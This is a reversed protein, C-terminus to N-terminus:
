DKGCVGHRREKERIRRGREPSEVAAGSSAIEGNQCDQRLVRRRSAKEM